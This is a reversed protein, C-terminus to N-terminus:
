EPKAEPVLYYRIGGVTVYAHHKPTVTLARVRKAEFGDPMLFVEEDIQMRKYYHGDPVQPTSPVKGKLIEPMNWKFLRKLMIKSVRVLDGATDSPKIPFRMVEIIEGTDFDKDMYHVTAGFEKAEEMIAHYALNRGRYEPLPAPHFNVWKYPVTFESEPIKHSYLYGIGLDYKPFTWGPRNETDVLVLECPLTKLHELMEKGDDTNSLYIVRPLM